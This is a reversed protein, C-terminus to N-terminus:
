AKKDKEAAQPEPTSAVPAVLDVYATAYQRQSPLDNLHTGEAQELTQLTFGNGGLVVTFQGFQSSNFDLNQFLVAFTAHITELRTAVTKTIQIANEPRSGTEQTIMTLIDTYKKLRTM